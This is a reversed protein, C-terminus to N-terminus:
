YQKSVMLLLFGAPVPIIEVVEPPTMPVSSHNTLMMTSITGNGVVNVPTVSFSLEKCAFNLTMFFMFQTMNIMCESQLTRRNTSDIVKVCYTIESAGLLTFPATWNLFVESNGSIFVM